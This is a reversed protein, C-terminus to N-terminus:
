QLQHARHHILDHGSVGVQLPEVNAAILHLTCKCCSNNEEEKREKKGKFLKKEM